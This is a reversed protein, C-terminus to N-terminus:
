RVDAVDAGYSPLSEQGAIGRMPGAPLPQGWGAKAAALNLVGLHRPHRSLLKRRLALPDQGSAAAIEDLFVETAYATHTSGVSRWWLVPVGVKTTHLEVRLNPID